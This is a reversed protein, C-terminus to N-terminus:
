NISQNTQKNIFLLLSGLIPTLLFILFQNVSPSISLSHLFFHFLLLSHVQFQPTQLFSPSPLPSNFLILIVCRLFSLRSPSHSAAQRCSLTIRLVIFM